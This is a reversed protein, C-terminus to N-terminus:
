RPTSFPPRCTLPNSFEFLAYAFSKSSFNLVGRPLMHPRHRFGSAGCRVVLQDPANLDSSSACRFIQLLFNATFRSVEVVSVAVSANSSNKRRQARAGSCCVRIGTLSRISIGLRYGDSIVKPSCSSALSRLVLTDPHFRARYYSPNTLRTARKHRGVVRDFHYSQSDGFGHWADYFLQGFWNIPSRREHWHSM